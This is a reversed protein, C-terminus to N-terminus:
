SFITVKQSVARVACISVFIRGCLEVCFCFGKRVQLKVSKKKELCMVIDLLCMYMCIYQISSLITCVSLFVLTDFDISWFFCDVVM